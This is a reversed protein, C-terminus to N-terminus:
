RRRRLLLGLGGIALLAMTAPEPLFQIEGGTMTASQGVLSGDQMILSFPTASGTVGPVITLLGASVGDWIVYATGVFRGPPVEPDLGAQGLTGRPDDPGQGFKNIAVLMGLFDGATGADLNQYWVPVSGPPPLGPPDYIFTSSDAQWGAAADMVVGAGTPVIGFSMNGFGQEGGDTNIDGITFTFSLEYEVPSGYAVLPNPIPTIPDYTDPDYAAVIEMQVDLLAAPATGALFGVVVAAILWKKTM